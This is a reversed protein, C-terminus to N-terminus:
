AKFSRYAARRSRYTALDISGADYLARLERTVTRKPAKKTSKAAAARALTRMGRREELHAPRAAARTRDVAAVGPDARLSTTGGRHLVLVKAAHAAPAVALLVAVAVSLMFRVAAM